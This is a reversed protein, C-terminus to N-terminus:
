GNDGPNESTPERGGGQSSEDAPTERTYTTELTITGSATQGEDNRMTVPVLITFPSSPPFAMANLDESTYVQVSIENGDGEDTGINGVMRIPPGSAGSEFGEGPAFAVGLFIPNTGANDFVDDVTLTVTEGPAVSVTETLVFVPAEPDSPPPPASATREYTTEFVITGSATQGEDNEMTVTVDVTFPSAPPSAMANLEEASRAQLVLQGNLIRHESYYDTTSFVAETFTANTGEDTFVEDAHIGYRIGISVNVPRTQSMFSPEAAAPVAAAPLLMAAALVTLLAGRCREYATFVAVRCRNVTM